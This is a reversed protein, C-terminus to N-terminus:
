TVDMEKLEVAIRRYDALAAAEARRAESLATYARDLDNTLKNRQAEALVDPHEQVYRSVAASVAAMIAARYTPPIAKGREDTFQHRYEGTYERRGDPHTIRLPREDWHHEAYLHVSLYWHRDRYTVHGPRHGDSYASVHAHEQDTWTVEVPGYATDLMIQPGSYTMTRETMEDEKM